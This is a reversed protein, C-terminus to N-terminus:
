STASKIQKATAKALVPVNRRFDFEPILTQVLMELRNTIPARLKMLSLNCVRRHYVGGPLNMLTRNLSRYPKGTVSFLSRWDSLLGMADFSPAVTAQISVQLGTADARARLVQVEKSNDILRRALETGLDRANAAAIAAARYKIIDKVVFKDEYLERRGLVENMGFWTAPFAAAFVARQVDIVIPDAKGTLRKWQEHIRGNLAWETQRVACEKVNWVPEQGKPPPSWNLMLAVAVQRRLDRFQMLGFSWRPSTDPPESVRFHTGHLEVRTPRRGDGEVVFANPSETIQYKGARKMDRREATFTPQSTVSPVRLAAVAAGLVAVKVCLREVRERRGFVAAFGGPRGQSDRSPARPTKLTPNQCNEVDRRRLREIADLGKQRNEALTQLQAETPKRRIKPRMIAILKPFDALLFAFTSGDDPDGDQVCKCCALKRVKRVAGPKDVSVALETESWPFFHGKGGVCEIVQLWPAEARGRQGHEAFYSPEYSVKYRDGFLEKLNPCTIM